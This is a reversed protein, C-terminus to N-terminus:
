LYGKIIDIISGYGFYVLIGEIICLIGLVALVPWLNLIKGIIDVIAEAFSFIAYSLGAAVFAVIFRPWGSALMELSGTLDGLLVYVIALVFLAFLISFNVERFPRIILAFAAVLIIISSTSDWKSYSSATLIIMIVGLVLGILMMFKYKGSEKDNRYTAVILLAFLGALILLIEPMHAVFADMYSPSDALVIPVDM